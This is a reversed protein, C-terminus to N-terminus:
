GCRCCLVILRYLARIVGGVFQQLYRRGADTEALRMAPRREAPVVLVALILTLDIRKLGALEKDAVPFVEPEDLGPTILLAAVPRFGAPPPTLESIYLPRSEPHLIARCARMAVLQACGEAFYGHLPAPRGHDIVVLCLGITGPEGLLILRLHRITQQLFALMQRNPIRCQTGRDIKLGACGFLNIEVAYHGGACSGFDVVIQTIAALTGNVREMGVLPPKMVREAIDPLPTLVRKMGQRFKFNM